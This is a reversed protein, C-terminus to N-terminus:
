ASACAAEFRVPLGLVSSCARRFTPSEAHRPDAAFDDIIRYEWPETLLEPEPLPADVFPPFDTFGSLAHVRIRNEKELVTTVAMADHRLVKRASASVRDFVERLDLM